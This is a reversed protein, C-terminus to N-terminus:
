VGAPVKYGAETMSKEFEPITMGAKQAGRELSYDGEQVSSFIEEFRGEEKLNQVVSCMNAGEKKFNQNNLLNEYEKDGTMVGLFKLVADVHKFERKDDPVYKPNKRKNVFFNAVIGFDSKFQELQEDTLWAVDIVNMHCDNVFPELEDPISMLEKLNVPKNWRRETGFHLVVTVVPIIQKDGYQSRYNAGEYGFIRVPMQEDIVTQNELGYVALRIGGERWYKMVDREQEHLKGDDAKYQSKLNSKELSEPKVRQKGNFLLVNIIDAFVDNYDELLKETMDKEAM